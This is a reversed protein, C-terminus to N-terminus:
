IGQGCLGGGLAEAAERESVARPEAASRWGARAGPPPWTLTWRIPSAVVVRGQEPKPREVEVVTLGALTLARALGLAYSRTGELGVLVRQAPAMAVIWAM